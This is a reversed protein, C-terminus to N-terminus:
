RQIMTCNELVVRPTEPTSAEVLPIDLLGGAIHKGWFAHFQPLPAATDAPDLIRMGHEYKAAWQPVVGPKPWEIVLNHLQFRRANMVVVAARAHRAEPCYNSCQMSDSKDKVAVPDEIWPYAIHLDRITIDELVGGDTATLLVRGDTRLMINAITVRRIVGAKQEELPLSEMGWESRGKRVELHIARNMTISSNTEIVLNSVTIDELVAGDMSIIDVARVSNYIVCNSLTFNRYNYFTEAGLRFAACNTKIICNTVTARECSRTGKECKFVIADDGTELICDSILVDRCGVFDFGDSNGSYVYTHMKVGRIWIEDCLYFRVTWGPSNCLTINEIRINRCHRLDNFPAPRNSVLDTWTFPPVTDYNRTWTKLNGDIIGGGCIMVNEVHEGYLLHHSGRPDENAKPFHSFDPSALLTAGTSLYLTINSRLVLTGSVWLGPPIFVIGGGAEAAADIAAQIYTHNVSDTGPRAGYDVISYRNTALSPNM